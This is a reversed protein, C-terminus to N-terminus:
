EAPVLGQGHVPREQGVVLEAVQQDFARGLQVVGHGLDEPQVIEDTGDIAQGTGALGAGLREAVGLGLNAM